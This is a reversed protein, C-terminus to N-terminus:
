GSSLANVVLAYLYGNGQNISISTLASVGDSIYSYFGDPSGYWWGTGYEDIVMSNYTSGTTQTYTLGLFTLLVTIRSM